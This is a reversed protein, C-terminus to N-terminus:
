KLVFGDKYLFLLSAIYVMAPLIGLNNIHFHVFTLQLEFKSELIGCDLEKVM